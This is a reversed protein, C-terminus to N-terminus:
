LDSNGRRQPLPCKQDVAWHILDVEIQRAQFEQLENTACSLECLVGAVRKTIRPYFMAHVIENMEEYTVDNHKALARVVIKIRARFRSPLHAREVEFEVVVRKNKPIEMAHQLMRNVSEERGAGPELHFTADIM